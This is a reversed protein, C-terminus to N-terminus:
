RAMTAGLRWLQCEVALSRNLPTHQLQRQLQQVGELTRLATPMNIDHVVSQLHAGPRLEGSEGGGSAAQLLGHTLHNELAHLRLPLEDRSWRDAIRVIDLRGSLAQGLVDICDDRLARLRAPDHELAALPANGLVDLAAEWDAQAAPRRQQLWALAESRQPARARLVLCRSRVTAPLLSPRSTVLVLYAGPRPEELTKLLANAGARAMAHAPRIVVVRNGGDHSTMGLLTIAHRVQDVLIQGSKSLKEDPELHHVDPHTGGQVRQCQVCHGCAGQATPAACALLQVFRLALLNGGAGPDEHIMLAAPLRGAERAAAVQAEAGTLWAPLSM